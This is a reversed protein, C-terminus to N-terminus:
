NRMSSEISFCATHKMQGYIIDYVCGSKNGRKKLGKKVTSGVGLMGLEGETLGLNININIISICQTRM